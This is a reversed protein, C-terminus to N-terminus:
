PLNKNKEKEIQKLDTDFEDQMSETDIMIESDESWYIPVEIRMEKWNVTM